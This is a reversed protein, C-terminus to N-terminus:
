LQPSASHFRWNSALVVSGENGCGVSAPRRRLRFEMLRSLEGPHKINGFTSHLLRNDIQAACEPRKELLTAFIRTEFLLTNV